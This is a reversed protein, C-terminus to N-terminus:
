RAITLRRYGQHGDAQYRVFYVGAAAPRGSVRGNWQEVHAGTSAMGNALVAIERGQVDLVSVKVHSARGLSYAVQVSGSTPNPSVRDITFRGQVGNATSIVPGFTQTRGDSGTARLRYQYTQGAVATPDVAVSM